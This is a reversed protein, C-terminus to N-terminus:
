SKGFAKHKPSWTENKGLFFIVNDGTTQIDLIKINEENIERIALNVMKETAEASEEMINLVRVHSVKKGYLSM